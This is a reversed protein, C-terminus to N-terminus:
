ANPYHILRDGWAGSDYVRLVGADPKIVDYLYIRRGDITRGYVERQDEPKICATLALGPDAYDRMKILSVRHCHECEMQTVDEITENITYLPFFM